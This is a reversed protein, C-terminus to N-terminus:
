NCTSWQYLQIHCLHLKTTYNRLLEFLYKQKIWIFNSNEVMNKRCILIKTHLKEFAFRITYIITYHTMKYLNNFCIIQFDFYKKYDFCPSRSAHLNFVLSSPWHAKLHYLLLRSFPLQHARDFSLFQLNVHKTSHFFSCISTSM